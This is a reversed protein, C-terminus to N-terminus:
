GYFFDVVDKCDKYACRWNEHGQEARDKALKTLESQFKSVSASNVIEQPLRNYMLIYAYLSNNYMRAHERVEPWHSVLTRDHFVSDQVSEFALDKILAPHCVELVRKHIFGLMGIRRRISPPAFNHRVFAETDSIALEHLYWRQMKDIRQLQSPVALILAGNHFESVSWIHTKYQTLMSQVSYMDKLRLLARVKPRGKSLIKEVCPQMTLECDVQTGLMRFSDGLGQRPHIVKFYEKAPDFTVQNHNGWEHARHQIDKLEDLLIDNSVTSACSTTATLDDAFLNVIQNGIPVATAVDAFFANWLSPGLVTGQFVMDCLWMVESIANEVTVFGERPLLYNNLFDLFTDPLGLQALKGLLLCRNVKDFAGSIDSLYVGVKFGKCILLVWNALCMTVLDRASSKKRFAWQANGFGKSELFPVLTQGIM